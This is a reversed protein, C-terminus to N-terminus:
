PEIKTFKLKASIARHIAFFSKRCSPMGTCSKTCLNDPMGNNNTM